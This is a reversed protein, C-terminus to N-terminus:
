RIKVFETPFVIIKGDDYKSKNMKAFLYLLICAGTSILCVDPRIPADEHNICICGPSIGPQTFKDSKRCVLRALYRMSGHNIRATSRAWPESPKACNKTMM